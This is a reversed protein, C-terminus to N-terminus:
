FGSSFATTEALILNHFSRNSEPADICRPPIPLWSGNTRRRPLYIDRFLRIQSPTAHTDVNSTNAIAM